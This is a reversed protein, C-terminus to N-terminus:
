AIALRDSPIARHSCTGSWRQGLAHRGHFRSRMYRGNAPELARHGETEAIAADQQRLIALGMADFSMGAGPHQNPGAVALAEDGAAIVATHGDRTSVARRFGQGFGFTGPDVREGDICTTGKGISRALPDDGAVVLPPFLVEFHGGGRAAKGERGFTVPQRDGMVVAGGEPEWVHLGLRFGQFPLTGM